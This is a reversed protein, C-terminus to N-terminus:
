NPNRFNLKNFNKYYMEDNPENLNLLLFNHPNDFCYDLIQNFNNRPLTIYESYLAEIEQKNKTPFFYIQDAVTRIELPIKNFKQSTIIISAGGGLHRRNYVLHLFPVLNKTISSVVDDFIFLIKSKDQGSQEDKEAESEEDIIIKDLDEINFGDIIQNSPLSIKEKITHLSNSFIYIKHFKKYYFPKKKIFNLFLTTKGGRPKSNFIAFFNGKSLPKVVQHSNDNINMKMAKCELGDPNPTEIMNFM